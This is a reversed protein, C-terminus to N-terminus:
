IKDRAAKLEKAEEMAIRQAEEPTLPQPKKEGPKRLHGFGMREWAAKRKTEDIKTRPKSKDIAEASFDYDYYGKDILM